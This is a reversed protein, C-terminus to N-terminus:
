ELQYLGDVDIPLEIISKFISQLPDSGDPNRRVPVTYGFNHLFSEENEEKKDDDDNNNYKSVFTAINEKDNDNKDGVDDDNNNNNNNGCSAASTSSGGAAFKIGEEECFVKAVDMLFSPPYLISELELEEDDNDNDKGYKLVTQNPPCYESWPSSCTNLM